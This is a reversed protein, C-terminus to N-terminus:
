WLVRVQSWDFEEAKQRASKSITSSFFQNTIVKEIAETLAEVNNSEVLLGNKKDEM